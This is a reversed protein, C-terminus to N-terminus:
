SHIDKRYESPTKGTFATFASFFANYSDYGVRHAVSELSDDTTVILRISKLIKAEILKQQFSVGFYRKILRQTQSTSLCLRGSLEKLTSNGAPLHTFFEDLMEMYFDEPAEGCFSRQPLTPEGKAKEETADGFLMRLFAAYFILLFGEIREEGFAKKSFIEECVAEIPPLLADAGKIHIPKSLRATLDEYFASRGDWRPYFSCRMSHLAANESMEGVYHERGAGIFLLDGEKLTYKDAGCFATCVGNAMVYLEHNLHSHANPDRPMSPKYFGADLVTQIRVQGFAISEMCIINKNRKSEFYLM